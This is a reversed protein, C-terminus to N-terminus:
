LSSGVHIILPYYSNPYIHVKSVPRLMRDQKLLSFGIATARKQSWWHLHESCLDLDGVHKNLNIEM